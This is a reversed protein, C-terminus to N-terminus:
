TSLLLLLLVFMLLYFHLRDDRGWTWNDGPQSQSNASALVLNNDALHYWGRLSLGSRRQVSGFGWRWGWDRNRHSHARSGQLWWEEGLSCHAWGQHWGWSGGERSYPTGFGGHPADHSLRDASIHDTILPAILDPDTWPAVLRIVPARHNATVVTVIPVVPGTHSDHSSRWFLHLPEARLTGVLYLFVLLVLLPLVTRVSMLTPLVAARRRTPAPSTRGDQRGRARHVQLADWLLLSLFMAGRQISGRFCM